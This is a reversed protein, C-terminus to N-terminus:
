REDKFINENRNIDKMIEDRFTLYEKCNLDVNPLKILKNWDSIIVSNPVRSLPEAHQLLYYGTKNILANITYDAVIDRKGTKFEVWSHLYKAKDSLGYVYGTVIDNPENIMQSVKIAKEHCLVSKKETDIDTDEGLEHILDTLKAVEIKGKTTEIKLIQDNLEINKIYKPYDSLLKALTKKKIYMSINNDTFINISFFIKYNEVYLKRAEILLELVKRTDGKKGAKFFDTEWKESKEDPKIFLDEYNRSFHM